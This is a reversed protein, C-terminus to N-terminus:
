VSRAMHYEHAAEGGYRICDPELGWAVFGHAEYLRKAGPTKESVSLYVREVGPLTSAHEIVAALLRSAIGLRRYAKDVFVGWICARHAAKIPRDRSLGILGILRDGDLAGFVVSGEAPLSLQQRVADESSATDDEPSSLFAFPEEILSARRLRFLEAADDPTM